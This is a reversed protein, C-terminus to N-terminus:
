RRHDGPLLDGLLAAGYWRLQRGSRRADAGTADHRDLYRQHLGVQAEYRRRVTSRVAGFGHTM